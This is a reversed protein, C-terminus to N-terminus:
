ESACEQVICRIHIMEIQCLRVETGKKLNIRVDIVGFTLM